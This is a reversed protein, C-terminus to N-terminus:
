AVPDQVQQRTAGLQNLYSVVGGICLDEVCPGWLAVHETGEQVGHEGVVTTVCVELEILNASV